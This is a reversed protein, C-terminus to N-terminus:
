VNHCKVIFNLNAEFIENVNDKETVFKIAFLVNKWKEM